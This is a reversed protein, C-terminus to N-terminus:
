PTGARQNLLVSLPGVVPRIREWVYPTSVFTDMFRGYRNGTVQWMVPEFVRQAFRRTFMM